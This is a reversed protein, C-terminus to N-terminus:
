AQINLSVNIQRIYSSKQYDYLQNNYMISIESTYIEQNEFDKPPIVEFYPALFGSEDKLDKLDISESYYTNKDRDILSIKVKTADIVSSLDPSYMLNHDVFVRLCETNNLTFINSTNITFFPKEFIFYLKPNNMKLKNPHVGLIEHLNSSLIEPLDDLYNRDKILEDDKSKIDFVVVSSSKNIDQALFYLPSDSKDAHEIVKDLKIDNIDKSELLKQIGEYNYSVLKENINKKIKYPILEDINGISTYCTLNSDNFDFKTEYSIRKNYFKNLLICRAMIVKNKYKILDFRYSKFYLLSSSTFKLINKELSEVISM